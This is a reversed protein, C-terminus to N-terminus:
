RNRRDEDMGKEVRAILASASLGLAQCLRFLVSLTPSKVDRELLSIYTRHVGARFALEEQTLSAAERAKRLERGLM